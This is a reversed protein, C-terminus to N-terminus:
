PCVLQLTFSSDESAGDSPRFLRVQVTQNDFGGLGSGISIQTSIRLISTDYGPFDASNAAGACGGIPPEFTVLYVGAAFRTASTATGDVLVGDSRVRAFHLTKAKDKRDAQAFALEAPRVEAAPGAPTDSCAMFTAGIAATATGFFATRICARRM